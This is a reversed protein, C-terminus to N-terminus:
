KFGRSWSETKGSAVAVYAQQLTSEHYKVESDLAMGSFIERGFIRKLGPFPKGFACFFM